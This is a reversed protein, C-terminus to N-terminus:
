DCNVCRGFIALHRIDPDFGYRTVLIKKLPAFAEEEIEITRGCNQCILHHHHGHEAHHYYLKNGGLDTEDVLDLKKLVELTRYITSKNVEPFRASVQKHIEEPTIHKEADHLVDVILSRQPTIRYGNQKLVERCGM